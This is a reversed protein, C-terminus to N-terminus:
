SALLSPGSEGSMVQVSPSFPGYTNILQEAEERTVEGKLRVRGELDSVDIPERQAIKLLAKFAFAVARVLLAEVMVEFRGGVRQRWEADLGAALSICREVDTRDEPVHMLRVATRVYDAKTEEGREQLWDAYVLRPADDGPASTIAAM